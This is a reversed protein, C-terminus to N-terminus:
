DSPPRTGPTPQLPFDSCLGDAISRYADAPFKLRAWRWVVNLAHCRERTDDFSSDALIDSVVSAISQTSRAMSVGGGAPTDLIAFHDAGPEWATWRIADGRSGRAPDGNRAFEAWYSMMTASLAERGEANEPTFLQAGESGMYWHGFVFPIEFGHSAGLMEPLDAGSIRPEEDWDFRYAFVSGPRHRALSHAVEDVAIAKWIRTMYAANRYYRQPDRLKPYYWFWWRVYEPDLFLFIREENRNTGLILPVPHIGNPAELQQALPASPLVTGDRFVLPISKFKGYATYIEEVSKGRLYQATESKSWRALTQKAAERDVATGDSQLLKLLLEGSSQRSGPESADWFNEAEAPTASWTVGSQSIARHFLGRTLPSTLLSLVNWGGASEGFLTINDPDGGFSAINTRVWELALILDLTGFNGSADIPDSGKRLAAHRLWGLPGLRYNVTAVIVNERTALASGDYFSSTGITNGGGYIWLMVPLRRQRSPLQDPALAPSYVNLFLCNEDGVLTGPPVSEDGGLFNAFQPCPSGFSLAKHTGSRPALARPARWRLAGEPPDAYPIGLWAYGGHRGPAGIM